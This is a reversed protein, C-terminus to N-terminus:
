PRVELADITRGTGCSGGLWWVALVTRAESMDMWSPRAARFREWAAPIDPDGAPLSAFEGALRKTEVPLRSVEVANAPPQGVNRQGALPDVTLWRDPTWEIRQAPEPDARGTGGCHICESM